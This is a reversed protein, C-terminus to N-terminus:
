CRLNEGNGFGLDGKKVLGGELCESNDSLWIELIVYIYYSFLRPALLAGQCTGGNVKMTSSAGDITLEGTRGTYLGKIVRILKQPVGCVTLSWWLLDRPVVDFARMIDLFLLWTHLGHEKRKRCVEKLIFLADTCGRHRRFGNSFEPAFSEFHSDLHQVLIKQFLKSFHEEIFILRYNKPLKPDHKKYLALMHAVTWAAPVSETEYAEQVLHTIVELAETDLILSLWVQLPVGSRGSSTNRLSKLAKVVNWTQPPRVTRDVM